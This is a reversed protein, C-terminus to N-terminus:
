ERNQARSVYDELQAVLPAEGLVLPTKEHTKTPIKTLIRNQGDSGAGGLSEIILAMPIAEYILRLHGLEFGDRNDQPYAFLGGSVILTKTHTVLSGFWRQNHHHGANSKLVFERFFNQWGSHWDGFNSLNVSLFREGIALEKVPCINNGTLLYTQGKVCLVLELERGYIFFGAAIANEGGFGEITEAGSFICFISGAPIGFKFANSGDFPDLSVSYDSGGLQIPFESEESVLTKVLGSNKLAESFIKQATVDEKSVFDGSANQGFDVSQEGVATELKDNVATAAVVLAKLLQRLPKALEEKVSVSSLINLM